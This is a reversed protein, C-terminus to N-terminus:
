TKPVLDGPEMCLNRLVICALGYLKFTKNNSEYKHFLVRFSIKLRRFAGEIVLKGRSNGYNFYPKDDPLIAEGNGKLIFTRLPFAGDGLILSPRELDEVQQVRNPIMEGAVVKKWLDTSKLLTSDHTNGPAGVSVWIILYDGDAPAM